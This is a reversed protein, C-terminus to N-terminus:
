GAQVTATYRIDRSAKALFQLEVTVSEGARLINDAGPMAPPNGVVRFKGGKKKSRQVLILLRLAGQIDVGGTNTITVQQKFRKGKRKLPGKSVAVMSTVDGTRPAPPAPPPAPPPVGQVFITVSQSLTNTAGGGSDIVEFRFEGVGSPIGSAPRFLMGRIQDLTYAGPAVVTIADALLVEGLGVPPVAAVQYSLTQGVEDAGGGVGYALGDLGLSTAPDGHQVSLNSLTGATRVPPDNVTTVTITLSLDLTDNGGNAAGGSDQV